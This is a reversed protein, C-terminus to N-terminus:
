LNNSAVPKTKKEVSKDKVIDLNPKEKLRNSVKQNADVAVDLSQASLEATVTGESVKKKVQRKSIKKEEGDTTLAKPKRPKRVKPKVEDVELNISSEIEALVNEAYATMKATKEENDREIEARVKEVVMEHLQNYKISGNFKHTFETEDIKNIIKAKTEDSINLHNTVEKHTEIVQVITQIQGLVSKKKAELNEISQIIADKHKNIYSAGKKSGLINDKEFAYPNEKMQKLVDSPSVDMKNKDIFNILMQMHPHNEMVVVIDNYLQFSGKLDDILEPVVKDNIYKAGTQAGFKQSLQILAHNVFGNVTRVYNKEFKTETDVASELLTKAPKKNIFSIFDKADAYELARERLINGKVSIGAIKIIKETEKAIKKNLRADSSTFAIVKDLGRKFISVKTPTKNSAVQISEELDNILKQDQQEVEPIIVEEKFGQKEWENYSDMYKEQHKEIRSKLNLSNFLNVTKGVFRGAKLFFSEKKKVNDYTPIDNFEQGFNLPITLNNGILSQVPVNLLAAEQQLKSAHSLQESLEEVKKRPKRVRKVGEMIKETEPSVKPKTVRKARTKKVPEISAENNLQMSDVVATQQQEVPEQKEEVNNTEIPQEKPLIEPPLEMGQAKAFQQMFSLMMDIKAQQELRVREAELLKEELEKKTIRTM